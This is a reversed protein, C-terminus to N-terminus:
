IKQRCCKRHRSYGPKSIRKKEESKIMSTDRAFISYAQERIPKWPTSDLFPPNFLGLPAKSSKASKWDGQVKQQEQETEWDHGVRQLGMSQLLGPKGKDKVIEWFKSLSMDISNTIGELWRTRQWEKRRRGEIKGLLLTKELSDTKWMLHGFYQLKLM